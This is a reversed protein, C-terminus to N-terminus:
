FAGGFTKVVLAQRSSSCALVYLEGDQKILKVRLNDRVKEWPLSLLEKELKTLRGKPTGVLYYIPTESQRMESCRKSAM